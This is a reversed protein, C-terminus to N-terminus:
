CALRKKEFETSRSIGARLPYHHKRMNMMEKGLRAAPRGSLHAVPLPLVERQAPAAWFVPDRVESM